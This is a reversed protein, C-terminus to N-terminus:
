PSEPQYTVVFSVAVTGVDPAAVARMSGLAGRVCADLGPLGGGSTRLDRVGGDEDITFGVTVRAAVSRGARTAAPRYCAAIAATHRDLGRRVQSATLSGRVSLEALAARADVIVVPKPPPPAADVPPPTPKPPPPAADVPPATVGADSLLPPPTPRPTPRPVPPLVPDQAPEVMAVTTGDPEPAVGADVLLAVGADVMPAAPLALAVAGADIPLAVASADRDRDGGRTLAFALVAAAAVAGGIAWPLLGAGRRPAAVVPLPPLEAMVPARDLADLAARVARADAFRDEPRKAMLRRVIAELRPPVEVGPARSAITPTAATANQFMLEALTGTFPLTGALLEFLTVGLSYQDARHDVQDGAAQEPSCYAPTGVTAGVSTLRAAAGDDDNTIALGFDAIRPVGDAVIVNDPKFDRHILGREHAHALGDCLGRAIAVVEAVPTPGADVRAGLTTGEVFDMVIYLLGAESRGFDIVRVVNPHDLASAAEAEQSFRLRMALTSALDGILVKVAFARKALRAHHARYVRGMAGEGVLAEIVYHEGLTAGILPDDDREDITAGDIPCRPFDSRYIASCRSCCRLRGSALVESAVPADVDAPASRNRDDSRDM